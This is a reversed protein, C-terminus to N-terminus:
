ATGGAADSSSRGRSAVVNAARTCTERIMHRELGVLRRSLTDQQKM